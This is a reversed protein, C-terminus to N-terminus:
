RRTSSWQPFQRLKHLYSIASGLFIVNDAYGKWIFLCIFLGQGYNASGQAGETRRQRQQASKTVRKALILFLHSQQDLRRALYEIRPSPTPPHTPPPSPLLIIAIVKWESKPTGLYGLVLAAYSSLQEGNQLHAFMSELLPINWLSVLISCDLCKAEYLCIRSYMWHLTRM